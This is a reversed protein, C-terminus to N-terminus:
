LLGYSERCFTEGDQSIREALLPDNALLAIADAFQDPTEAALYHIGATAGIGRMGHRTSVLPRRYSFAEISKLKTGGGSRLPVIIIQAAAYFFELREADPFFEVRAADELLQALLPSAHRGVVCLKWPRKLRKEIEPQIKNLLYLIAEENPPYNLTGVFLIRLIDSKNPNNIDKLDPLPIRNPREEINQIIHKRFYYGDQASALWVISYSRTIFLELLVYQVASAMWHISERYHKMRILCGAVSVRTFSELDDMDLELKASPYYRSIIQGLGHLYFRFVVIRNVDEGSLESIYHDFASMKIPFHWDAIVRRSLLCIPPFLIGLIRLLKPASSTKTQVSWVGEAPYDAPVLPILTDDAVLVYVKHTRNLDNLWAWARLARGSQGPLPLVPTL